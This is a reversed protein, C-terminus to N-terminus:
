SAACLCQSHVQHTCLSDNTNCMTMNMNMAECTVGPESIKWFHTATSMDSGHGAQHCPMHLAGLNLAHNHGTSHASPSEGSARPYPTFLGIFPASSAICLGSLNCGSQKKHQCVLGNCRTKLQKQAYLEGVVCM